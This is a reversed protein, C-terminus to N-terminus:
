DANTALALLQSYPGNFQDQGGPFTGSSASQWLTWTATGAPISAPPTSTYSALWFPNTTAFAASNATCTNWWGFTTYIMPYKNTKLHMEDSFAKVWNDMGT